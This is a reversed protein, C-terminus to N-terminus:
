AAIVQYIGKMPLRRIRSKEILKTISTYFTQKSMTGSEHLHKLNELRVIDSGTNEVIERMADYVTIANAPDVRGDNEALLQGESVKGVMEIVQHQNIIFNDVLEDDDRDYRACVLKLYRRNNNTRNVGYLFDAESGFIRSGSMSALTLTRENVGKPCHTIVIITSEYKVCIERLKKMVNKAVTENANDELTLRALSDIVVVGPKYFAIEAEMLDWDEETLVYRPMQQTSVIYNTEINKKEEDTFADLQMQNREVRGWSNEEYSLFLCVPNASQLPYGSFETRGAAICMLLHETFTTKGSKAPGFFFGISGVKIGKFLIAPPDINQYEKIVEGLSQARRLLLSPASAESKYQIESTTLPTTNQVRQAPEAAIFTQQQM